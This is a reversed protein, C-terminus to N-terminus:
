CTLRGGKACLLLLLHFSMYKCHKAMGKPTKRAQPTGSEVSMDEAMSSSVTTETM